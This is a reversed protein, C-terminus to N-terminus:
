FYQYRFKIRSSRLTIVKRAVQNDNTCTPIILTQASCFFRFAPLISGLWCDVSLAESVLWSRSSLPSCVLFSPLTWVSSCARFPRMSLPSCDTSASSPSSSTSPPISMMSSRTSSTQSIKTTPVWTEARQYLAPHDRYQACRHARRSPTRRELDATPRSAGILCYDCSPHAHTRCGGRRGNPVTRLPHPSRCLYQARYRPRRSRHRPITRPQWRRLPWSLVVLSSFFKM